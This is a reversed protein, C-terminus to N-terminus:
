PRRFFSPAVNAKEMILLSQPEPDIVIPDITIEAARLNSCGLGHIADLRSQAYSTRGRASARYAVIRM